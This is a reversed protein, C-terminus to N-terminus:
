SDALSDPHTISSCNLTLLESQSYGVIQCFQENIKIFNEEPSVQAIGVAANEFIARFAEERERLATQAHKLATIEVLVSGIGPSSLIGTPTPLT